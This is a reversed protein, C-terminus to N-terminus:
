STHVVYTSCTSQHVIKNPINGLARRTKSGIGKNGVVVVAAGVREAVGLVAEVASGTEAHSHAVVGAIKARSLADAVVSDVVSSSTICGEFEPPLKGSSAPRYASVIHLPQDFAKAFDIAANLAVTATDSGDTGVVIPGNM